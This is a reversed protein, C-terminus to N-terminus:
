AKAMFPRVSLPGPPALEADTVATGRGVMIGDVMARMYHSFNRTKPNTIWRSHGKHDAMKGDLTIAVKALVYPKGTTIWHVFSRNLYRAEEECLPCDVKIKAKRLQALGKGAVKPNPDKMAYVVRTIGAKIVADTCPGTRGHHCCPELNVYLTAGKAWKGALKLAVIEAHDTGAKRHFGEAIIKGSKVVVAGVLPNPSTQGMAMEALHLARQMFQLDVTKM